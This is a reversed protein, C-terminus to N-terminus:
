DLGLVQGDYSFTVVKQLDSPLTLDYYSDVSVSDASVEGKIDLETVFVQQVTGGEKLNYFVQFLSGGDPSVFTVFFNDTHNSGGQALITYGTLDYLYGRYSHFRNEDKDYDTKPDGRKISGNEYIEYLGNVSAKKQKVLWEASSGMSPLALLMVVLWIVTKTKM